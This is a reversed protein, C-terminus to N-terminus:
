NINDLYYELEFDVMNSLNKSELYYDISYINIIYNPLTIEKINRLINYLKKYTYFDCRYYYSYITNFNNELKYELRLGNIYDGKYEDILEEIYINLDGGLDKVMKGSTWDYYKIEAIIIKVDEKEEHLKKILEYDGYSCKIITSDQDSVPWIQMCSIKKYLFQNISQFVEPHDLTIFHILDLLRDKSLKEM